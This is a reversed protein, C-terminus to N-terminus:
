RLMNRAEILMRMGEKDKMLEKLPIQQLIAAAREYDKMKM